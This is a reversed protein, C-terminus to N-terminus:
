PVLLVLINGAIVWGLLFWIWGSSSNEAAPYLLIAPVLMCLFAVLHTEFTHNRFWNIWKSM